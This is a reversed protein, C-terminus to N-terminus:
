CTIYKLFGPGNPFNRYLLVVKKEKKKGKSKYPQKNQKSCWFPQVAQWQM